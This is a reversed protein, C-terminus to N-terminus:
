LSKEFFLVNPLPNHYYPSITNFGIRRYISVARELTTLTDLRMIKYDLERAIEIIRKVLAIGVKKGRFEPKVYLRKMECIETDIKKVAVCGAIKGDVRAIILRGTPPAYLAPLNDLEATFSQFCLDVNLETRYELFLARAITFDDSSNAPSLEFPMQMM